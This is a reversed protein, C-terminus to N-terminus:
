SPFEITTVQLYDNTDSSWSVSTFAVTHPGAGLSIWVAHPTFAKHSGGENSYHFQTDQIAGDVLLNVIMPGAGNYGSVSWFLLVPGGYSTFSGIRGSPSNSYSLPKNVYFRQGNYINQTPVELVMVNSFDNFDVSSTTAVTLSHAGAALGTVVTADAVLCKHSSAENTYVNITGRLFGDVTLTAPM